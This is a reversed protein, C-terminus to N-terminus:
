QRVLYKSILLDNVILEENFLEILNNLYKPILSVLIIPYKNYIYIYIYIYIDSFIIAYNNV